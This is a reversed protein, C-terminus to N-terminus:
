PAAPAAVGEIPVLVEQRVVEPRPVERNAVETLAWAGLGIGAVRELASIAAAATSPDQSRMSLPNLPAEMSWQEVGTIRIDMAKGQPAKFVVPQYTRQQSLYAEYMRDVKPAASTCGSLLSGAIILGILVGAVLVKRAVKDQQM